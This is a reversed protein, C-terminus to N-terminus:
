RADAGPESQREVAAAHELVDLLRQEAERVRRAMEREARETAARIRLEREQARDAAEIRVRATKAAEEIRERAQQEAAAEAAGLRAEAEALVPEFRVDIARRALLEVDATLESRQAAVSERLVQDGVERLRAEAQQVSRETDAQLGRAVGVLRDEAARIRRDREQRALKLEQRRAKPSLKEVESRLEVGIEAGLERMRRELDSGAQEAQGAVAVGAWEEALSALRQREARLEQTLGGRLADLEDRLRSLRTLFQESAEELRGQAADLAAQRAPADAEIRAMLRQEAADIASESELRAVLERVRRGIGPRRQAM